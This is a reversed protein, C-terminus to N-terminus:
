AYLSRIIICILAHFWPRGLARVREPPGRTIRGAAAPNTDALCCRGADVNPTL